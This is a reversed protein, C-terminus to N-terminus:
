CEFVHLNLVLMKYKFEGENNLDYLTLESEPVPIMLNFRISGLYNNKNKIYITTLSDKRINHTNPIYDKSKPSSMPVFYTLGGLKTLLGIYKRHYTRETPKNSMVHNNYKSLFEIYEDSILYLKNSDM